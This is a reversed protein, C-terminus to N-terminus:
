GYGVFENLVVESDRDHLHAQQEGSKQPGVSKRLQRYAAEDVPVTRAFQEPQAEEAPRHRLRGATQDSAESDEDDARKANPTPSAGKNGPPARTTRSQNPTRSRPNAVPRRCDADESPLKMATGNSVNRMSLKLQRQINRITPAAPTTSATTHHLM